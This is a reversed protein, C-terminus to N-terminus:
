TLIAITLVNADSEDNEDSRCILTWRCICPVLWEFIDRIFPPSKALFPISENALCYILVVLGGVKVLAFAYLRLLGGMDGVAVVLMEKLGIRAEFIRCLGTLM